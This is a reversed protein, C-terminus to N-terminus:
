EELERDKGNRMEKMLMTLTLLKEEHEKLRCFAEELLSNTTRLVVRITEVENELIENM